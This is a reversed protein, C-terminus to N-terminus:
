LADAVQIAKTSLADWPVETQTGDHVDRVVVFKNGTSMGVKKLTKGHKWLKSTIGTNFEDRTVPVAIVRDVVVDSGSPLALIQDRRFIEKPSLEDENVGVGAIQAIITDSVLSMGKESAFAETQAIDTTM